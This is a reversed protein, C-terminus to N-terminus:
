ISRSNYIHRPRYMCRDICVHRRMVSKEEGNVTEGIVGYGFVGFSTVSPIGYCEGARVPSKREAEM